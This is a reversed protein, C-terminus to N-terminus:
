KLKIKQFDSHPPAQVNKKEEEQQKVFKENEQQKNKVKLKM